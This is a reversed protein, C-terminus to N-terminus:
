AYVPQKMRCHPWSVDSESAEGSFLRERSVKRCGRGHEAVSVRMGVSLYKARLGTGLLKESDYKRRKIRQRRTESANRALGADRTCYSRSCKRNSTYRKM